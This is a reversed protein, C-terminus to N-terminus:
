RYNQHMASNYNGQAHGHRRELARKQIEAQILEIIKKTARREDSLGSTVLSNTFDATHRALLDVLQATDLTDLNEM